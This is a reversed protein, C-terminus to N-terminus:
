QNALAALIADVLEGPGALDVSWADIFVTVEGTPFRFHHLGVGLASDWEGDATGGLEALVALVRAITEDDTSDCIDVRKM